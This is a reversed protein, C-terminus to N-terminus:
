GKQLWNESGVCFSWALLRLQGGDAGANRQAQAEGAAAGVKTGVAVLVAAGDQVGRDVAVGVGEDFRRVVAQDM